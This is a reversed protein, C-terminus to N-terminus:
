AAHWNNAVITMLDQNNRVDNVNTISAGTDQQYAAIQQIILNVDASSVFHGDELEFREIRATNTTQDTVQITDGNGQSLFLNNGELYFAVDQTTIGAGFRIIDMQDAVRGNDSVTDNGDGRNFLYTDNGLGGTLQDNGTGGDIVDTGARGEIYDDGTGGALVDNGSEGYISDNGDDGFITDHGGAGILVDNGDGGHIEDSGAGGDIHDNGLEGFLTDIGNGGSIDDDGDGGYIYDTGGGGSLTDAGALGYISDAGAGGDINDDGDGGDLNDNGGGGTLIDNGDMGYVFDAGAGGDLNDNGAGGDILDSGDGGLINDDGEEGYLFDSGLGGDIADTGLGGYITDAGAEGFLSDNGAEGGIGDAGNGGYVLDNGGGANVTDNGGLASITDAGGTGTLTNAGNTGTITQGQGGGVQNVIDAYTQSSGDSFRVLEIHQSTDNSLFGQVLISDASQNFNIRLDLGEAVYTIDSALVGLEIADNGGGLVGAGDSFTDLGDGLNFRYIDDGTGGSVFDNGVGGSLQDNGDGGDLGDAGLGGSLNDEGIGGSLSDDGDDGYLFDNADEGYLFDDGLGGSLDDNGLGGSVSDTGDGAAIIDGFRSGTLIDDGSTGRSADAIQQIEASDVLISGDANFFVGVNKLGAGDLQNVVTVNDGSGLLVSFDSGTARVQVQAEDVLTTFQVLDGASPNVQTADQIVTFSGTGAGVNFVGSGQGSHVTDNVGATFDVDGAGLLFTSDSGNHTVFERVQSFSRDVTAGSSSDSVFVDKQLVDAFTAQSTDAFSFQGVTKAIAAADLADKLTLVATGFSDVLTLDKGVSSLTLSGINDIGGLSVTDFGNVGAGAVQEFLTVGSVGAGISVATDGAGGYIVTGNAANISLSGSSAIITDAVGANIEGIGTGATITNQSGTDNVTTNGSGMFIQDFNGSNNIIERGTSASRDVIVNDLANAITTVVSDVLQQATYSSGDAFRFTGINRLGSEDSAQGTVNISDGNALTISMAYSGDWSVSINELTVGDYFHLTDRGNNQTGGLAGAVNISLSGFGSRTVIVDSGAESQITTNTGAIITNDGAGANIYNGVGRDEIQDNGSGDYVSGNNGVITTIEKWTAFRRDITPGGFFPDVFAIVNVGQALVQDLTLTSGDAFTFNEVRAAGQALGGSLVVKEGTALDINLDYQTVAGSAVPPSWFYLGSQAIGAGFNITDSDGPTFAPGTRSIVTTGTGLGLNIEVHGTGLHVSANTGVTINAAGTQTSGPNLWFQNGVGSDVVTNNGIGGEGVVTSGFFFQNFYGGSHVNNDGAGALVTNGSGIVTYTNDADGGSVFNGNGTVNVTNSVTGISLTSGSGSLNIIEKVYSGSHDYTTGSGAADVTLGIEGFQVASLTAGDAFSFESIQKAASKALEGRLTLSDLPSDLFQFVLDSGNASLQIDSLDIGSGFVVSDTRPILNVNGAKFIWAGVGQNFYLANDGLNGHIQTTGFGASSISAAGSGLYILNTGGGVTIDYSGTQTTLWTNNGYGQYTVNGSGLIVYGNNGYSTVTEDIEVESRDITTGDLQYTPNVGFTDLVYKLSTSRSAIFDYFEQYNSKSFFDLGRMCRLFQSTKLTGLAPDEAEEDVLYDAIRLLNYNREGTAYNYFADTQLIASILGLPASYSVPNSYESAEDYSNMEDGLMLQAYVFEKIGTYVPELILQHEYGPISGTGPFNYESIGSFKKIISFVEGNMHLAPSANESGTWKVLVQHLLHDQVELDTESLFAQVLNKLQGSSDKQMAQSLNGVSGYGYADPLAEIEASLQVTNVEFSDMAIQQLVYSGIQGTTGDSRTFTSVSTQTNGASDLINTSTNSLNIESIGLEELSITDGGGVNVILKSFNADLSNIKGDLNSDLLQLAAFSDVNPSLAQQAGILESGDDIVRNGNYDVGLIGDNGRVWATRGAFGSVNVDFHIGHDVTSTEIGNNDLDLILPDTGFSQVGNIERSWWRRIRDEYPHGTYGSNTWNRNAESFGLPSHPPHSAAFDIQQQLENASNPYLAKLQNATLGSYISVASDGHGNAVQINAMAMDGIFETPNQSYDYNNPNDPFSSNDQNFANKFADSENYHQKGNQEGLADDLAHGVEHSLTEPRNHDASDLNIDAQGFLPCDPTWGTPEPLPHSPDNPNFTARPDKIPGINIKKFGTDSIIKKINAPLDKLARTVQERKSLPPAMGNEDTTYTIEIGSDPDTYVHETKPM